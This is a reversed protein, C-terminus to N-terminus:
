SGLYCNQIIKRAIMLTKISRYVTPVKQILDKLYLNHDHNSQNKTMDGIQGIDNNCIDILVFIQKKHVLFNM